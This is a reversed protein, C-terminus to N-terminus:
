FAQSKKGRWVVWQRYYCRTLDVKLSGAAMTIKAFGNPPRRGSRTDAIDITVYTLQCSAFTYLRVIRTSNCSIAGSASATLYGLRNIVESIGGSSKAVVFANM